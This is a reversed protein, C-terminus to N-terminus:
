RPKIHTRPKIQKRPSVPQLGDDAPGHAHRAGVLGDGLKALEGLLGLGHLQAMHDLTPPEGTQLMETAVESAIHVVQRAPSPREPEAPKSTPKHKPSDSQDM